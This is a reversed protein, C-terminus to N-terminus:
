REDIIEADPPLYRLDEPNLGVNRMFDRFILTAIPAADSADESNDESYFELQYPAWTQGELSGDIVQAQVYAIIIEEQESINDFRMIYADGEPTSTYGEVSPQWGEFLMNLNLQVEFGETSDDNGVDSSMDDGVNADAPLLGGLADPDDAPLLIVQNTLYQYNYVVDGDLIIFNDAIADPQIIYAFALEEAPIIQVDIELTYVTGDADTIDGTLLFQSDFTTDATEELAALIAEASMDQALAGTFLVACVGIVLRLKTPLKRYHNMKHM